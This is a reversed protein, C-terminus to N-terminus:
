QCYKTITEIIMPKKDGLSHGANLDSCIKEQEEKPIEVKEKSALVTVGNEMHLTQSNKFEYKRLRAFARNSLSEMYFPELEIAKDYDRIAEDFKFDYLYATGRHFYADSYNSNLEIAKNLTRVAGQFNEERSLKIGNSLYKHFKEDDKTPMPEGEKFEMQRKLQGTSYWEKWLGDEKGNKFIGEQHIRGNQFFEKSEGNELGNSYHRFYSTSGNQYYVTRLGEVLGDKLIGEGQKKGNIFYDIFRGSYPTQSDKLYWRGGKREMQKVTPINKIDDLRKNYEKTIIFVIKDLDEHGFKAIEAKNTIVTLTEIDTELLEGDDEEPDEIIAISDVVYLIREETGQGFTQLSIATLIFIILRKM